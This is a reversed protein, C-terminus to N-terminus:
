KLLETFHGQLTIWSLTVRIKVNKIIIIIILHEYQSLVLRQVIMCNEMGLLVPVLKKPVSKWVKPGLSGGQLYTLLYTLLSIEIRRAKFSTDCPLPELHSQLPYLRQCICIKSWYWFTPMYNCHFVLLFDYVPKRNTGTKIVKSSWLRLNCLKKRLKSHPPLQLYVWVILLM